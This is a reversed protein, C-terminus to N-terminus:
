DGARRWVSYAVTGDGSASAPVGYSLIGREYTFDRVQRKGEWNPFSAAEVDFILQHKAADIAVKGFHTSSGAVAARNEEDTGKSKTGSAFVPRDPRFIQMNYRGAADVTLLGKPHEGYNTTRSGDAHIEYAAEMVWTGQLSALDDARAAATCVLLLGAIWRCISM